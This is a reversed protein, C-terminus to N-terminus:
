VRILHRLEPPKYETSCLFQAEAQKEGGGMDKWIARELGHELGGVGDILGYDVDSSLEKHLVKWLYMEWMTDSISGDSLGDHRYFELLCGLRRLMANRVFETGGQRTTSARM